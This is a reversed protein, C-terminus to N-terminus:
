IRGPAAPSPTHTTFRICPTSSSIHTHNAVLNPYFYFIYLLKVIYHKVERLLKKKLGEKMNISYSKELTGIITPNFPLCVVFMRNQKGACVKCLFTNHTHNKQSETVIYFTLFYVVM